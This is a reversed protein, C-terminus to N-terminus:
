LGKYPYFVIELRSILMTLVPEYGRIPIFFRPLYGPVWRGM